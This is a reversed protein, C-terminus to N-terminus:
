LDGVDIGRAALAGRHSRADELSRFRAVYDVLGRHGEPKGLRGLVTEANTPAGGTAANGGSKDDSGNCAALLVGAGAVAVLWRKASMCGDRAPPEYHLASRGAVPM